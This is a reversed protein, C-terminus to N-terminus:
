APGHNGRRRPPAQSIILAGDSQLTVVSDVITRRIRKREGHAADLADLLAEFRELRVHPQMDNERAIVRILIRLRIEAPYAALAAWDLRKVCETQRTAHAMLAENVMWDLADSTRRARGALRTLTATTLGMAASQQLASRVRTRAFRDNTNSPDDTFPVDLMQCTAVLRSKPMQLFPRVLTVGARQSEVAMGSLGNIGSGAVLRMLVTEAQDDAHHALALHSLGHREAHALLLHYRAHRAAEQLGQAPKSGLWPLTDHPLGLHAATKAVCQAEDASETRLGHDVTAVMLRPQMTWRALLAMMAMSDPGGSVAILVGQTERFSTAFLTAAEADGVPRAGSGDEAATM